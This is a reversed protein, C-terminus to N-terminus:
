AQITIAKLSDAVAAAIRDIDDTTLGIYMPLSLIEETIQETVPLSGPGYGLDTYAQQRHVPIRYHILTGVGRAKLAEQLQDRQPHRIVYLHYVHHANSRELPLTVDKLQQAYRNALDRRVANHEDLHKLKVALLAAQMEDLRSNIGREVHEYRSAQGYNRLSKLQAAYQADNTIVAGGDGLAGLNKTPYFSFAAMQGFTGVLKGDYRAGHAQACDEILLLHHRAALDVLASLDAPHGYLHVPIMAKTRPTIAAEAAAPNMTYTDPDIDVLVPTAGAREIACVTAVATHSVTIVEDGPGINAARLALELADTGSAVGVAHAMGHYAAFAAEFAEVEPGLIFWGSTLVRQTAAALEDALQTHLPKLNNFPIM